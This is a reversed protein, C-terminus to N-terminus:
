EKLDYEAMVAKIIVKVFGTCEPATRPLVNVTWNCGENRTPDAFIPTPAGCDNCDGDLENSNEIRRQIEQRIDEKTAKIKKM